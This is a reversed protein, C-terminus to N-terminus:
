IFEMNIAKLHTGIIRNQRTIKMTYTHLQIYLKVAIILILHSESSDNDHTICIIIMLFHHIAMMMTRAINTHLNLICSRTQKFIFIYHLIFLRSLSYYGVDCAVEFLM